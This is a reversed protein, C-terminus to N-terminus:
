YGFVDRTFRSIRGAHVMYPAQQNIRDLWVVAIKSDTGRLWNVHCM